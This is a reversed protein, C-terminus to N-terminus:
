WGLENKYEREWIHYNETKERIKDTIELEQTDRNQDRHMEQEESSYEKEISEVM